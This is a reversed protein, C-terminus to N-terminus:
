MMVEFYINRNRGPSIDIRARDEFANRRPWHAAVRVMPVFCNCWRLSTTRCWSCSTPARKSCSIDLVRSAVVRPVDSMNVIGWERMVVECVKKNFLLACVDTMTCCLAICSRTRVNSMERAAEEKTREVVSRHFAGEM